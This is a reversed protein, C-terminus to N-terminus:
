QLFSEIERVCERERERVREGVKEGKVGNQGGGREM